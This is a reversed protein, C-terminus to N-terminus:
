NVAAALTIGRRLPKIGRDDGDEAQVEAAAVAATVDRRLAAM